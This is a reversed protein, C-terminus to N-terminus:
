HRLVATRWGRVSNILWVRSSRWFEELTIVREQIQGQVLLEGRFTGALLGSSVPPTWLQGDLEVVINSTLAETIEGHENWLIVEDFDPRAARAAEYAERRTTKHYLWINGSDVPEVALGIRIPEPLAGQSLPVAQVTIQGNQAVLLRIKQPSQHNIISSQDLKLILDNIKLEERVATEDVVIGFYEASECLRRLHAELLFCGEEPTWLLSELLSFAPRRATLVQTKVRCEEYEDAAESDWVIGGGVGYVATGKERDVVVTRIAVNFQAQRNPAIYGIAGTYVGRPEPELENIIKMTRVKPAGTISACPFMAAMIESLPAQTRATVTSTMQLVTPYREVAFLQPVQVSGIQAVRGMDNRIMDVIMVNEARNKESQHLWTINTQDEALTRGRVATGKMPKGTLVEGDLRFFLEPSASCIAFQETEVFAAYEAQQAAALDAFLGHPDGQFDTRLNYTYNVQYTNGAAIEAKIHAIATEYSPWNVSPQWQGLRYHNTTSPLHHITTPSRYLGFWLLPLNDHAPHVALNFAAAAEYTIFGAAYLNHQTVATEVARLVVTVEDPRSAVLVDVPNQFTLWQGDTQLILDNTM